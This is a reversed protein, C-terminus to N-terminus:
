PFTVGSYKNPNVIPLNSGYKSNIAKIFENAIIGYGRGTLHVGDLSFSGGTVFKTTYKVGDFQIGSGKGLEVMKANADVLAVGYQNALATIAENYKATAATVKATEKETLVYQDQLPFTVGLKDFPAPMNNPNKGLLSSSTLTFLDKNTAHRAQGFYMGLAAAQQANVGAATLGATIQASMDTLDKDKILIPNYGAVVSKIRDGQGFATLVQKLPGVLSQNLTAATAADLAIPNYPVTTFFPIATVSPINAIVGKAGTSTLAQLYGNIVNKYVTPDTIDNGGYTTPDFNGTQDKGVGGTTAYSLVDNNGIWLSFFTPKQGVADGMVSATGSSAFRVYYPNAKGAAVGAVNGYGAGGLHFTKSGPVGMNQFPGQSYINALTTTGQGDAAVPALAGNVVKLVLKNGFVGSIGGLNDAMLPQKFEGGGMLKMQEAIMSPYSENQGDIYLANDRYGSTLSNGLAVYKSFDAQGSTFVTDNVDNEFDTNCSVTLLLASVAISNLIIKKM